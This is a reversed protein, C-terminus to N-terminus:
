QGCLPLCPLSHRCRLSPPLGPLMGSGAALILWEWNPLSIEGVNIVKMTWYAGTSSLTSQMYACPHEQHTGKLCRNVVWTQLCKLCATPGCAGRLHFTAARQEAPVDHPSSGYLGTTYVRLVETSGPVTMHDQVTQAGGPAAVTSGSKSASAM